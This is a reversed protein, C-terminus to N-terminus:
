LLPFLEEKGVAVNNQDRITVLNVDIFECGAEGLCREKDKEVLNKFNQLLRKSPL